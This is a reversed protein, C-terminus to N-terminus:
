NTEAKIPEKYLPIGTGTAARDLAYTQQQQIHIQQSHQTNDPLPRQTSSIGRGSSHLRSRLTTTDSRSVEHILLGQGVPPQRALLLYLFPYKGVDTRQKRARIKWTHDDTSM